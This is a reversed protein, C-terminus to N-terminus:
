KDEIIRIKEAIIDTNCFCWTLGCKVYDKAFRINVDNLSQTDGMECVGRYIVDSDIRMTNHGIACSWDKYNNEQNKMLIQPDISKSSGDSYTVKLMHNIKNLFPITSKRKSNFLHGKVSNTSKLIELEDTSYTDYINYDSIYMAKPTIYSGTNEIIYKSAILAKNLTFQTHTILCITDIPEDLFLNLVETVHKYNETMESHYTIILNDVVNEQRLESWYRLTRSGNSILSIYVGKSKIYKLLDILHPYLTPEGGTIQFWVSNSNTISILKDTYEKYKELSLWKTSGDKHRPECFSCNYNCVNHIKWEIFKYQQPILKQVRIPIVKPM